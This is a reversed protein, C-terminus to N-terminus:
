FMYYPQMNNWWCFMPAFDPINLVAQWSIDNVKVTLINMIYLCSQWRAYVDVLLHLLIDIIGWESVLCFWLIASYKEESLTGLFIKFNFVYHDNWDHSFILSFTFILNVNAKRGFIIKHLERLSEDSKRKSLKFAVAFAFM